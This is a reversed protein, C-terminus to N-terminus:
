PSWVGVRRQVYELFALTQAVSGPRPPEDPNWGLRRDDLVQGLLTSWQRDLHGNAWLLAAKKSTVRGEDITYLIRCLATVAYRQAWAIDFTLWSLLDPLFTRASERMRARLAEPPVPDVLTKPDPGTLTVGCERLSWRVVETNCHTSWQMERWGHDIYLWPRGLGAMTRLEGKDPYSGELHHTWHGPRTPIEDHLARLGAERDATIPGHVPILFDCDSHMDADGVAFSGQLYAGVFNDGLIGAARETLERLLDNLEPFQTPSPDPSPRFHSVPCALWLSVRGTSRDPQAIGPATPATLCLGLELTARPCPRATVV